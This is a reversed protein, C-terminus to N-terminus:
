MLQSGVSKPPVSFWKSCKRMLTTLFILVAEAQKQKLYLSTCRQVLGVGNTCEWEKYICKLVYTFGWQKQWVLLVLFYSHQELTTGDSWLDFLDDWLLHLFIYIYINTNSLIYMWQLSKKKKKQKAMLSGFDLSLWTKTANEWSLLCMHIFNSNFSKGNYSFQIESTDQM